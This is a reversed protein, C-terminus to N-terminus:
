ANGINKGATGYRQGASEKTCKVLRWSSVVDQVRPWRHLDPIDYLRVLALIKGV